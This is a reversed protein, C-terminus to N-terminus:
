FQGKSLTLEGFRVELVREVFHEPSNTALHFIVGEKRVFKHYLRNAGAQIFNYMPSQFGFFIYIARKLPTIHGGVSFKKPGSQLLTLSKEKSSVLYM